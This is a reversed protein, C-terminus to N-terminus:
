SKHGPLSIADETHLVTQAVLLIPFSLNCLKDPLTERLKEGRTMYAKRQSVLVGRSPVCVEIFFSYNGQVGRDYILLDGLAKPFKFGKFARAKVTEM